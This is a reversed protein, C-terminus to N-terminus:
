GGSRLAHAVIEGILVATNAPGRLPAAPLISTDALRLGAIGHVRGTQDVATDPDDPSGMPATGCTHLSTGLRGRIWGDLADDDAATRRDLDPAGATLDAFAKTSVLELALRVGERLRARGTATSLYGYRLDPPVDPDADVLQLRGTPQAGMASILVPLAPTPGAVGGTLVSMPVHAPLVQLDGAAPGGASRANLVGSIWSDAGRGRYDRPVWNLVVQPHDSFRRGVAPLDVLVEIGLARLPAAPGIGSRLLLAPTNLAGACVVVGGADIVETAGGAHLEVGVARGGRVRLRGVTAGGRVTLNPRGIAPLVYALGTNWRRGHEVNRPVPGFGPANQANKDPEAPFGLEAAAQAFAAALPGTLAPRQVPVPGSGGHLDTAGYDLDRELGRLFPLVREYAWAPNGAAAWAAFDEQRARMFYGGNTATSGGLFRGRFIDGVGDGALRVPYRWHRGAAPQAGPVLAADLLEPPFEAPSGPCDGAELLLVRRDPDESARAAVVAGGAGAGVVILDFTHM